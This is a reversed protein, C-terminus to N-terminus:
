GAGQLMSNRQQSNIQPNGGMLTQILANNRAAETGGSSINRRITERTTTPSQRITNEDGGLM